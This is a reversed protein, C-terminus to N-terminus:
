VRFVLRGGIYVTAVGSGNSLDLYFGGDTSGDGAQGGSLAVVWAAAQYYYDAIKTSSSAGISAPLFGRPINLLTSQWGDSNINNVGISTYNTATNDALNAAVNNIYSLNNNTNIGDMFKWIHGYWNEIGRYSMYANAAIENACTISVASATNGSANGIGNSLGTATLPNYANYTSWDSVNSIGPGIMSQSNFSAYEILYLLQVASNVDYLMQTWGTGRASAQSRFTARTQNVYISGAALGSVSTLKSSASGAEYAGVYAYSLETSGSMFAPHLAFGSRPNESIEWTHNTGTYVHRYYFKPIEVMVQGDTGNIVSASGDEKYASDTSLLYYQVVGSDNIVCRRMKSQIPLKFNGPSSGVAIGMLNGTRVYVDTSENWSVGYVQSELGLTSYSLDIWATTGDGFKFKGTDSEFGIEGLSLISNASVWNLFTDRRSQIKVTM